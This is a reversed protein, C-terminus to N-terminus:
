ESVCHSYAVDALTEAEEEVARKKRHYPRELKQPAKNTALPLSVLSLLSEPGHAGAEVGLLLLLVQVQVLVAPSLHLLLYQLDVLPHGCEPFLLFFFTPLTNVYVYLDDPVNVRTVVKVM